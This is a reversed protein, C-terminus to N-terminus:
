VVEPSNNKEKLNVKHKNIENNIKMEEEWVKLLVLVNERKKSKGLDNKDL